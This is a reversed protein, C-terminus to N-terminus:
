VYRFDLVSEFKAFTLWSIARCFASMAPSVCSSPECRLSFAVILFCIVSMHFSKTWIISSVTLLWFCILFCILRVTCWCITDLVYNLASDLISCFVSM